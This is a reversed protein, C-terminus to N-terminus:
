HVGNALITVNAHVASMGKMGTQDTSLGNMNSMEQEAFLLLPSTLQKGDVLGRLGEGDYSLLPSIECIFEGSDEVDDDGDAHGNQEICESGGNVIKKTDHQQGPKVFMGGARLVYRRHLDYLARRATNPTDKAATNANKLPSFEEERVVEWM